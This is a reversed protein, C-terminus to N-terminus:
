RNDVEKRLQEMYAEILAAVTKDYEIAYMKIIKKYEASSSINLQTKREEVKKIVHAEIKASFIM